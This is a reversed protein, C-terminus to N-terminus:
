ESHRFPCLSFCLVLFLHSFLLNSPRTFFLCASLGHPCLRNPHLTASPPPSLLTITVGGLKAWQWCESTHLHRQTDICSFCTHSSCPHPASRQVAVHCTFTGTYTSQPETMDIEIGDKHLHTCDLICGVYECQNKKGSQPHSKSCRFCQIRKQHLHHLELRPGM